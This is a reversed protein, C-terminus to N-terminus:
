PKMLRYHRMFSNVSNTVVFEDGELSPTTNLLTWAGPVLPFDTSQLAFGTANTSWSLRVSAALPTINLSYPVCKGGESAEYLSFIESSTLARHYVSLEDIYGNLAYGPFAYNGLQVPGTVEAIPRTNLEEAGLQQGDVYLRFAGESRTVALHYWADAVPSWPRAIGFNNPDIAFGLISPLGDGQLQFDFEFGGRDSGNLQYVLMSNKIQNFKVWVEISFDSSRFNWIPSEPILVYDDVGDFSFAQGVRGPALTAGNALTVPPTGLPHIDTAEAQWWAVLGAPPQVCDFGQTTQTLAVWGLLGYLPLSM